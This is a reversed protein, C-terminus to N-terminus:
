DAYQKSKGFKVMQWSRHNFRCCFWTMGACSLSLSLSLPLSCGSAEPTHKTLGHRRLDDKPVLRWDWIKSAIWSLIMMTDTPLAFSWMFQLGLTYITTHYCLNEVHAKLQLLGQPLVTCSKWLQVFCEIFKQSLLPNNKVAAVMIIATGVPIFIKLQWPCHHKSSM